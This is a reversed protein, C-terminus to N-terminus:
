CPLEPHLPFPPCQPRPRPLALALAWPPLGSVPLSWLSPPHLAPACLHRCVGACVKPRSGPKGQGCVLRHHLGCDGWRLGERIGDKPCRLSPRPILPHPAWLQKVYVGPLSYMPRKAVLGGLPQVRPCSDQCPQTPLPPPMHMPLTPRGGSRTSLGKTPTKKAQAPPALAWPQPNLLGCCGLVLCACQAGHM